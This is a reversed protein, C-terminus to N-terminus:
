GPGRERNEMWVLHVIGTLLLAVFSVGLGALGVVYGVGGFGAGLLFTAILSLVALALWLRLLGVTWPRREPRRDDGKM